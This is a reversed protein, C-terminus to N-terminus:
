LKFKLTKDEVKIIYVEDKKLAIETSNNEAKVSSVLIGGTTYVRIPEGEKAGSIKVGRNTPQVKVKSYNPSAVANGGGQKYVITLTSNGVIAPTTFNGDVDLLGTVDENNFIVSYISWGEDALIVCSFTSGQETQINVSGHDAQKICLNCKEVQRISAEALVDQAANYNDNGAQSARLQVKGAAICELYTRGDVTSIEAYEDSDIAYTVPFKSSASATLEVVDGVKLDSLDQNWRIKQDAKNITLRGDSYEFTYNPSAGGSVRLEYVGVDSTRSASTSVFPKTKLSSENDEGVWGDYAIAFAPNDEGYAREYNGVSTILTKPTITLEGSKFEVEYNKATLEDTCTIAYSGVVSLETATTTYNPAASVVSEFSEGNVLGDVTYSFSPNPQGYVKTENQPTVTLHAPQITYNYPIDASFQPLGTGKFTVPIYTSYSGAMTELTPAAAYATYDRINGSCQVIPTQGNYNFESSSFTVMPKMYYKYYSLAGSKLYGDYDAVYISKLNTQGFINDGVGEKLKNSLIVVETLGTSSFASYEITEVSAPIILMDKLSCNNFAEHEIIKLSEPLIVGSIKFGRFLKQPIREVKSGLTLYHINLAGFAPYMSIEALNSCNIANWEVLELNNCGVFVQSHISELGEGISVSSLNSGAFVYTNLIKLSNPLELHEFGTDGFAYYGIEELQTPWTIDKLQNFQYFAYKGIYTIGESFHVSTIEEKYSFYPPRSNNTYDYMSGTGSITLVGDNLEWSLNTGCTGSQANIKTVCFTSILVSLLLLRKM